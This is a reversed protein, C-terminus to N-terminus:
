ASVFVYVNWTNTGTCVFELYAVKTSAVAPNGIVTTGTAGTITLTQGGGLNAFTCEFMDGVSVGTIAGSITTGNPLTVTGAGTQGTQTVFGGLIQTITPTSNQTTGLSATTSSFIPTNLVGRGISIQGTSTGGIIVGGAGKGEVHIAEASASSTASVYAGSGAAYSKINIGTASSATSADVNLAPNTTGNAGVALANAGASTVKFPGTASAVTAVGANTITVDQSLAVGAAVNSANGVFVQGSTLALDTPQVTGIYAGSTNIVQTGNVYLGGNTGDSVDVGYPMNTVPIGTGQSM